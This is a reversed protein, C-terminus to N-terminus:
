IASTEPQQSLALATILCGLSLFLKDMYIYKSFHFTIIQAPMQLRKLSPSNAIPSSPFIPSKKSINSFIIRLVSHYMQPYVCYFPFYTNIRMFFFCDEWSIYVIAPTLARLQKYRYCAILVWPLLHHRLFQNRFVESFLLFLVRLEEVWIM